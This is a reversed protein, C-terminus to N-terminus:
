VQRDERTIEEWESESHEPIAIERPAKEVRTAGSAGVSEMTELWENTKVDERFNATGGRAPRTAITRAMVDAAAEFGDAPFRSGRPM